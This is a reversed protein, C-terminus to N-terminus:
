PVLHIGVEVLDEAQRWLGGVGVDLARPMVGRSLCMGVGATVGVPEALDMDGVQDQGVGVGAGAVVAQRTM